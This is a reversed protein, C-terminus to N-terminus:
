RCGVAPLQQQSAVGLGLGLELEQDLLELKLQRGLWWGSDGDDGDGLGGSTTFVKGYLENILM